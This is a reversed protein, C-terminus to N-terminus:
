GHLNNIVKVKILHHRHAGFGGVLFPRGHANPRTPLVGNPIQEMPQQQLGAIIRRMRQRLLQAAVLLGQSPHIREGM